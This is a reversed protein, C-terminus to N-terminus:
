LLARGADDCYFVRWRKASIVPSRPHHGPRRGASRPPHQGFVKTIPLGVQRHVVWPQPDAGSNWRVEGMLLAILNYAFCVVSPRRDDVGRATYGM